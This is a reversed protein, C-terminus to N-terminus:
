GEPPEIGRNVIEIYGPCSFLRNRKQTTLERVIGLRELHGLAKNVTAPTLGTLDAGARAQPRFVAPFGRPGSASDRKQPQYLHVDFM